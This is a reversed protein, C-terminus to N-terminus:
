GFNLKSYWLLLNMDLCLYWVFPLKCALIYKSICCYICSNEGMNLESEKYRFCLFIFMNFFLFCFNMLMRFHFGWFRRNYLNKLLSFNFIFCYFLEDVKEVCKNFRTHTLRISFLYMVLLFLYLSQFQMIMYLLLWINM